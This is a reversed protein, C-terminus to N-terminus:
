YDFFATFDTHHLDECKENALRVLGRNLVNRSNALPHEKKVNKPLANWIKPGLAM